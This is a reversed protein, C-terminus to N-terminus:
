LPKDIERAIVYLTVGKDVHAPFHMMLVVGTRHARIEYPESSHDAFDHLRGVIDGEKVDEGLEVLPEWIATRPAPIYDAL